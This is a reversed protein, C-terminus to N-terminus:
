PILPSRGFHDRPPDQQGKAGDQRGCARERLLRRCRTGARDVREGGPEAAREREGVVGAIAHVVRIEAPPEHQDIEAEGTAGIGARDIKRDDRLREVGDARLGLPERREEDRDIRGM